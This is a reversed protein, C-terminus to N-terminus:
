IMKETWFNSVLGESLHFTKQKMYPMNAIFYNPIKHQNLFHTYLKNAFHEWCLSFQLFPCTKSRSFQHMQHTSTCKVIKSDAYFEQGIELFVVEGRLLAM